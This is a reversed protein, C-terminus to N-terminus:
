RWDAVNPDKLLGLCEPHLRIFDQLSTTETYGGGMQAALADAHAAVALAAACTRDVDGEMVVGSLLELDRSQLLLLPQPVLPLTGTECHWPASVCQRCEPCRRARSTRHTTTAPRAM